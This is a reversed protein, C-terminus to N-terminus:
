QQAQDRVVLAGADNPKALVVKAGANGSQTKLIHAILFTSDSLSDIGVSCEFDYTGVLRFKGDVKLLKRGYCGLWWYGGHYCVTQIGLKTYGSPIVHRKKFRLKKDYEYLTNEEVGEPLGGVVVFRGKHCAIGGAGHVVEPLKHKAALSLDKAKYVYVWNDARGPPKNFSGFNVAVYVKGKHYTADGHHGKVPLRHLVKGQLDTKVLERTFSWYIAKGKEVAIGQLHGPDSAECTVQASASGHPLLLAPMLVTAISALWRSHPVRM